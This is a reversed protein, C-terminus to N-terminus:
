VYAHRRSRKRAGRAWIGGLHGEVSGKYPAAQSGGLSPNWGFPDTWCAADTRSVVPARLDCPCAVQMSDWKVFDRSCSPNPAAPKSISELHPIANGGRVECVRVAHVCVEGAGSLSERTDRGLSGHTRSCLSCRRFAADPWGARSARFLFLRALTVRTCVFFNQKRKIKNVVAGGKM